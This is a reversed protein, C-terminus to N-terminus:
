LCLTSCVQMQTEGRSPKRYYSGNRMVSPNEGEPRQGAIGGCTNLSGLPSNFSHGHPGRPIEPCGLVRAPIQEGVRRARPAMRLIRLPSARSSFCIQSCKWCALPWPDSEISWIRSSGWTGANSPRERWRDRASRGGHGRDWPPKLSSLRSKQQGLLYKRCRFRIRSAETPSGLLDWAPLHGQVM